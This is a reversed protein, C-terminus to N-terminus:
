RVRSIDRQIRQLEIFQTGDGDYLALRDNLTQREASLEATVARLQQLTAANRAVRRVQGVYRRTLARLKAQEQQRQEEYAGAGISVERHGSILM